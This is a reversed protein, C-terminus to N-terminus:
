RRSRLEYLLGTRRDILKLFERDETAAPEVDPPIVVKGVLREPAVPRTAIIGMSPNWELNPVDDPGTRIAYVVGFAHRRCLDECLIRLHKLTHVRERVWEISPEVIPRGTFEADIRQYELHRERVGPECVYRELDRLSGRLAMVGEGGAFEASAFTAARASTEALFIKRSNGGGVFDFDLSWPKLVSYGGHSDGLWSMADFITVVREIDGRTIAGADGRIGESEIGVTCQSSTGHYVIWPDETISPPFLAEGTVLASESFAYEPVM